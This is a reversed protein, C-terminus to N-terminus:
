LDHNFVFNERFEKRIREDEKTYDGLSIPNEKVRKSLLAWKSPNSDEPHEESPQLGLLRALERENIKRLARIIEPSYDAEFRM